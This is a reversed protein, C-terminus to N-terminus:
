PVYNTERRRVHWRWRGKMSIGLGATRDADIQPVKKLGKKVTIIDEVMNALHYEGPRSLTKGGM